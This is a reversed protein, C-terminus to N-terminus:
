QATSLANDDFGLDFTHGTAEDGLLAAVLYLRLRDARV